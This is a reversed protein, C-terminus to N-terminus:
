NAKERTCMTRPAATAQYKSPCKALVETAHFSDGDLRGKVVVEAGDKFTDPITGAYFVDIKQDCNVEVFRFEQRQHERDLRKQISGPQVFGHMELAKGTWQARAPVVEDVRKYFEAASSATSVLIFALAGVIIAVSAVGLILKTM